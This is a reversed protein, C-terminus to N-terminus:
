PYNRWTVSIQPRVQGPQQQSMRLRTKSGKGRCITMRHLGEALFFQGEGALTQTACYLNIKNERNILWCGQARKQAEHSHGERQDRPWLHGMWSADGLTSWRTSSPAGATDEPCSHHSPVSQTMQCPSPPLKPPPSRVVSFDPTVSYPVQMNM